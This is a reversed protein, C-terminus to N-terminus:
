FWILSLQWWILAHLRFRSSLCTCCMETAFFFCHFNVNNLGRISFYLVPFHRVFACTCDFSVGSTHLILVVVTQAFLDYFRWRLASIKLRLVITKEKQLWKVIIRLRTADTATIWTRVIVTNTMRTLLLCAHSTGSRLWALWGCLLLVWIEWLLTCRTIM